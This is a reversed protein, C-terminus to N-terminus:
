FCVQQSCLRPNFFVVYIIAESHCSLPVENVAQKNNRTNNWTTEVWHTKASAHTTSSASRPRLSRWRCQRVCRPCRSFGPSVAQPYATHCQTCGRQLKRSLTMIQLNSKVLDTRLSELKSLIFDDSMGSTTLGRVMEQLRNQNPEEGLVTLLPVHATSGSKFSM